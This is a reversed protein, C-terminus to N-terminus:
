TGATSRPRRRWTTTSRSGRPLGAGGPHRHRPEGSAHRGLHRRSRTATARTPTTARHPPARAGPPCADHRPGLRHEALRRVDGREHPDMRRARGRLGGRLRTTSDGACVPPEGPQLVPQFNCQAAPDTRFEVAAIMEAVQACDAATMSEGSPGAPTATPASGRCTGAQPWSTTAHRWSHTPTTSSTADDPDPLGDHRPLLPARGQRSRDGRDHPRQVHGGEVLLAYGHNPVGSNTHVGGGDDVACFYEADTVKGPDNVCRPNWMDRIAGGFATADEGMLWRVNDATSPLGLRM